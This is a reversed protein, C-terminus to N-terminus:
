QPNIKTRWIPWVTCLSKKLVEKM